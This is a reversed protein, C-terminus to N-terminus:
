VEVVKYATGTNLYLIYSFFQRTKVHVDPVEVKCMRLTWEVVVNVVVCYVFFRKVPTLQLQM